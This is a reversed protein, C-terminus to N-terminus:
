PRPFIMSFESGEGSQSVIRVSGKHAKMIHKVIKLGLGVGQPFEKVAEHTRYFNDFIRKQEKHSIGIGRDKIKVEVESRKETISIEIKKQDRSYKIANDLINTLARLFADPDVSLVVPSDPFYTKVSFKESELRPKFLQLMNEILPIIETPEMQYQKKQSDIKGFDMINHLFRSLRTCESGMLTLLEKQKVSDEIKGEKLIDSLGQISAMPTRIEHSVSTIFETKMRNLEDLKEIEKKELFVEEQLKMRELNVTLEQSLTLLLEIDEHSYREGSKKKGMVLCGSIDTMQFNLSIAAEMALKELVSEMSFDIGEEIRVSNKRSSIQVGATDKQIVADMEGGWERKLIFEPQGEKFAYIAMGRRELPLVKDITLFFFDILQDPVAMKQAREMFHLIGKKYDYSLRFFAKDMFNQINKRLPHFASAAVLAAIGSLIYNEVALWRAIYNHLLHLSFLFISVIFVSLLGYVLSRNIVLEINMLKYKIIAISFTVPIIIFFMNSVEESIFPSWRLITPILYLLIFPALGITLGYLAWKIQARQEQMFIINYLRILHGVAVGVYLVLYIRFVDLIILHIHYAEISNSLASIVFVPIWLFIFLCSPLYVILLCLIRNIRWKGPTFQFSFHLLLAVVLPYTLYNFSAAIESLWSKAALYYGSGVIISYSFMLCTWYYVRAKRDHSRLVYVYFGTASTFLGILLYILPILTGSYYPVLTVQVTKIHENEKVQILVTEGISKHRLVFIIDDPCTVQINEIRVVNNEDIGAPLKPRQRLLSYGYIGLIVIVGGLFLYLYILAKKM